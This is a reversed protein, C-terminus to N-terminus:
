KNTVKDHPEYTLKLIQGKAPDILYARADSAAAVGRAGKATPVLARLRFKGDNSVEIISLTATVSAAAYLSSQEASFDIDDLGAGTVISDLLKGDHTIDLNVVRDTCAVFLFGRQTDIALGQLETSGIPWKSVIKHTHLDIAVTSGEEDINTYFRGRQNDIAYGESPGGLDIKGKLKPHHADSVDFVQISKGPGTVWVEHTAAVYVMGHPGTDADPSLRPIPVCEGRALTKADIVCLSSEGRNGIYIAGEGITVATPGMRAKRGELEINRTSFGSVRSVSDSNCDIVDVAGTNSAPVWLRNTARDYALHDLIIPSKGAALPIPKLEYDSAVTHAYSMWGSVLIVLLAAGYIEGLYRARSYRFNHM